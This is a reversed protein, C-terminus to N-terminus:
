LNRKGRCGETRDNSVRFIDSHPSREHKYFTSELDGFWKSIEVHRDGSIICQNTFFLIRHTTVDSKIQEVVSVPLLNNHQCLGFYFDTGSNM